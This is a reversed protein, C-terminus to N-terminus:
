AANEEPSGKSPDQEGEKRRHRPSEPAEFAFKDKAELLRGIKLIQRRAGLILGESPGKPGFNEEEDKIQRTTRHSVNRVIKQRFDKEVGTLAYALIKPPTEGLIEAMVGEDLFVLDEFFVTRALVEDIFQPDQRRARQLISDRVTPASQELLCAFDIQGHTSRKFRDLRLVKVPEAAATVQQMVSKLFEPDDKEAQLIIRKKLETPATDLLKAFELLGKASKKYRKIDLKKTDSM